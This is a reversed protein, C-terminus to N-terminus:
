LLGVDGQLALPVNEKPKTDIVSVEWVGTAPLCRSHSYFKGGFWHSIHFFLLCKGMRMCASPFQWQERLLRAAISAVSESGPARNWNPPSGSRWRVAGYPFLSLLRLLLNILLLYCWGHIYEIFFFFFPCHLSCWILVCAQSKKIYFM